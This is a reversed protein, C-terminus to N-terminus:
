KARRRTKTVYRAGVDDCVREVLTGLNQLQADVITLPISEHLTVGNQVLKISIIWEGEKVRKDRVPQRPKREGLKPDRRGV